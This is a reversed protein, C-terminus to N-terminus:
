LSTSQIIANAPCHDVSQTHSSLEDSHDMGMGTITSHVLTPLQGKAWTVYKHIYPAEKLRVKHNYSHINGMEDDSSKDSDNHARPLDQLQICNVIWEPSAGNVPKTQYM